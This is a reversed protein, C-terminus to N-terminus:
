QIGIFVPAISYMQTLSVFCIYIYGELHSGEFVCIHKWNRTLHCNARQTGTLLEEQKNM